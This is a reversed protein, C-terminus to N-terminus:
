SAQSRRAEEDLLEFLTLQYGPTRCWCDFTGVFRSGTGLTSKASRERWRTSKGFSMGTSSGQWWQFQHLWGRTEPSLRVELMSCPGVLMCRTAASPTPVLPFSRLPGSWISMPPPECRPHQSRLEPVWLPGDLVATSGSAGLCDGHALLICHEAPLFGPWTLSLFRSM